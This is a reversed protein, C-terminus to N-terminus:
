EAPGSEGRAAAAREGGERQAGKVRGWEGGTEHLHHRVLQGLHLRRQADVAGKDVLAQEQVM